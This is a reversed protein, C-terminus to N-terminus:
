AGLRALRLTFRPASGRLVLVRRPLANRRRLGRGRSTPLALTNTSLIM